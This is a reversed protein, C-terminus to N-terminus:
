AVSFRSRSHMAQYWTQIQEKKMQSFRRLRRITKM